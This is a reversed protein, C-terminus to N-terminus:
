EEVFGQWKRMYDIFNGSLGENKLYQVSVPTEITKFDNNKIVKQPFDHHLIAARGITVFDVGKKLINLVDKGNRINGAVTLKVENRELELFHDLLSKSHYKENAPLKFSDWLSIDLFDIQQDEILIQCAKKVEMLDMGFREPSLRIGLLFDNGCEKRVAFIIDRILRLRNELTGGYDDTRTNIESSLFQSLIYGHAGHIEVGDYGWKKARIAANVFDSKLDEVESLTLSRAGFKENESPCVPKQGILDEPSRMGAHHLQIVALSGHKKIEKSLKKHGDSLEDSFIGLQRPFGQGVRQVHSACTMVLGFGGKARLTLWNFEEESLSGDENSQSNTLPALMFKNTMAKGCKFTIRDNVM